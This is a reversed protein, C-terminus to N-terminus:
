WVFLKYTAVTMFEALFIMYKIIYILFEVAFVLCNYILKIVSWITKLAKLIGSTNDDYEGFEELIEDVRESSPMKPRDDSIQSLETLYQEFSFERSNSNISFLAVIVVFCLFFSFIKKM